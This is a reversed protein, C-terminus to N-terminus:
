TDFMNAQSTSSPPYYAGIIIWRNPYLHMTGVFFYLDKKSFETIYKQRILEQWNARGQLKRYLQYIEWDVVKLRHPKGADDTFIYRFSFPVLDFPRLNEPQFMGVQSQLINLNEVQKRFDESPTQDIELDVIQAPKILALSNQKQDRDERFVEHASTLKPLVVHNRLSWGNTAPIFDLPQISDVDIAHSEERFDKSRRVRAEIWTYKAFKQDDELDRFPVPYLRMWQGTATIGAMCSAERHHKSITPYAKVTLLIRETRWPDRM